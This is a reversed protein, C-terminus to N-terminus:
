ARIKNIGTEWYVRCVRHGQIVPHPVKTGTNMSFAVKLRDSRHNIDVQVAYRAECKRLGINSDRLHIIFRSIESWESWIGPHRSTLQSSVVARSM